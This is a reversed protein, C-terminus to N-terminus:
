RFAEICRRRTVQDAYTRLCADMEQTQRQKELENRFLIMTRNLENSASAMREDHKIVATEIAALPNKVYGTAMGVMLFLATVIVLPGVAITNVFRAVTEARAAWGNFGPMSDTTRRRPAPEPM